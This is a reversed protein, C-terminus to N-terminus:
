RVSIADSTAPRCHPAIPQRTLQAVAPEARVGDLPPMAAPCAVDELMRADVGVPMGRQRDLPPHHRRDEVGARARHEAVGGRGPPPAQDVALRGDDVDAGRRPRPRRVADADVVRPQMSAVVWRRKGIVVTARVSTSWADCAGSRSTRCASASASYRRSSSTSSTRASHTRPRGPPLRSLRASARWWGFSARVRLSVSRRKKPIHSRAPTGSGSTLAGTLRIRISM